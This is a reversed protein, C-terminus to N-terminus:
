SRPAAYFCAISDLKVVYAKYTLAEPDTCGELNLLEVKRVDVRAGKAELAIYGQAFPGPGPASVVTDGEVVQRLLSDGLVIAEVRAWQGGAYAKLGLELGVPRQQEAGM